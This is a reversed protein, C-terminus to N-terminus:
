VPVITLSPTFCWTTLPTCVMVKLSSPSAGAVLEEAVSRALGEAQIAACAIGGISPEVISNAVVADDGNGAVAIAVWVIRLGPFEAIAGLPQAAGIAGCWVLQM